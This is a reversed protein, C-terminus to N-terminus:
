QEVGLRDAIQPFETILKKIICDNVLECYQMYCYCCPKDDVGFVNFSKCAPCRKVIM